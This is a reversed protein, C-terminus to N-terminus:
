SARKKYLAQPYEFAHHFGWSILLILPLACLRILFETNGSVHRIDRFYKIIIFLFPCHILYVSYSIKGLFHLAKFLSKSEDFTVRQFREALILLYMAFAAFLGGVMDMVFTMKIAGLSAESVQLKKLLVYIVATVVGLLAIGGLKRNDSEATTHFRRAAYIGFSFLGLYWPCLTDFDRKGWLGGVIVLLLWLINACVLMTALGRRQWVPMLLLIFVLYIQWEVSISWLAMNMSGAYQPWWGHLLLLHSLIDRNYEANWPHNLFLVDVLISFILAAYYGPLIRKARRQIFGGVGGDVVPKEYKAPSLGLSFGSLVIFVGVMFHGFLFLNGLSALAKSVPPVGWALFHHCMVYLAAIGRLYDLIKLKM